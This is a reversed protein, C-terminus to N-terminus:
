NSFQALEILNGGPDHFEVWRAQHNAEIGWPMEIHHEQLRAVASDLDAVAFAIMPFRPANAPQAAKEQSEIIVLYLGNGLDFAPHHGHHALSALGIVDRYFHVTEPVHNTRISIVALREVESTPM